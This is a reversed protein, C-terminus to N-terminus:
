PHILSSFNFKAQDMLLARVSKNLKRALYLEGNINLDLSINGIYLLNIM